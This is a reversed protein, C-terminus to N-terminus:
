GKRLSSMEENHFGMEANALPRQRYCRGEPHRGWVKRSHVRTRPGHRIGQETNCIGMQRNARVSKQLMLSFKTARLHEGGAGFMMESATFLLHRCEHGYRGTM